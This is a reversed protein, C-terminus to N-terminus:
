MPSPTANKKICGAHRTVYDVAAGPRTAVILWDCIALRDETLEADIADLLADM